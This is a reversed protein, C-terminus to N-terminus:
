DAKGASAADQGRLGGTRRPSADRRVTSAQGIHQHNVGGHPHEVAKLGADVQSLLNHWMTAMLKEVCQRYKHYVNGVKLMPKETRGSGAVHGIMVRLGHTERRVTSAQGIHQHNGTKLVADVESLLFHWM